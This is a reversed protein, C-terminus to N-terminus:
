FELFFHVPPLITDQTVDHASQAQELIDLMVSAFLQIKLKEVLVHVQHLPMSTVFKAYQANCGMVMFALIVAAFFVTQNVEQLVHLVLHQQM